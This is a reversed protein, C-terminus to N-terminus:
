FQGGGCRLVAFPAFAGCVEAPPLLAEGQGAASPPLGNLFQAGPEDNRGAAFIASGVVAGQAGSSATVPSRMPGYATALPDPIATTTGIVSLTGPVFLITYNPSSVGYPTVAYNGAPSASDALTAYLLSGTLSAPSDGSQLGSYSSSFPPNPQAAPRSANNATITLGAPNIVGTTDTVFTVAYNNGSNGDSVAGSATLTKGTAVNKTDYVQSFAGTDGPAVSGTTVLPTVASSVTGDYGKTDTQATVTIPRTTITGSAATVYSMSYNNGGNGDTM